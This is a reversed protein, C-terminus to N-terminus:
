AFILLWLIPLCYLRPRVLRVFHPRVINGSNLCVPGEVESVHKTCVRTEYEVPRGDCIEYGPSRHELQELRRTKWLLRHVRLSLVPSGTWICLLRARVAITCVALCPLCQFVSRAGRNVSCVHSQRTCLFLLMSPFLECPFRPSPIPRLVSPSFGTM